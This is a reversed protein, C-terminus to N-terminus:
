MNKQVESYTFRKSLLVLTLSSPNLSGGVVLDYSSPIETEDSFRLLAHVIKRDRSQYDLMNGM